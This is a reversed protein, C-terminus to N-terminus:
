CDEEICEVLVVKEADQRLLELESWGWPKAEVIAAPLGREARRNPAM